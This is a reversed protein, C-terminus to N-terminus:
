LYPTECTRECTGWGRHIEKRTAVPSDM